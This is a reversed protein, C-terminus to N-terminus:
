FDGWKLNQDRATIRRLTYLDSDKLESLHKPWKKWNDWKASITKGTIGKSNESLLFEILELIKSQENFQASIVKMASIKEHDNFKLGSNLIEHQMGSPLTGPSIINITTQSNLNELSFNEVFRILATKSLSYPMFNPRSSTGGGGSFHIIKLSKGTKLNTAFFNTFFISSYLNIRMVYDIDEFKLKLNEGIKGQVASCNIYSDIDHAIIASGSKEWENPNELQCQISSIKSNSFSRSLSDVVTALKKPDRGGVIIDNGLSALHHSVLNGLYGTAGSIYITKTM